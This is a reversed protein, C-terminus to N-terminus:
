KYLWNPLIGKIIAVYSPLTGVHKPNSLMVHNYPKDMNPLWPNSLQEVCGNCSCPIRRVACFVKDLDPDCRIHYFHRMTVKDQNNMVKYVAKVGNFFFDEEKYLWYYKHKLRANAERKAHKKNGKTGIDDRLDLLPKCEGAFIVEGKKTMSDVSMRKSDINDVEPTSRM